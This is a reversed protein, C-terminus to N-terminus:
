EKGFFDPVSWPKQPAYILNGKEITLPSPFNNHYLQGTGLGQPLEPRLSSALQAIANLGINSELASTLWWSIGIDGAIEIWERCATIGGLLSPKLILYSPKIKRLLSEKEEKSRIGILEEDLAVPVPSQRCLKAMAAINGVPIPQEISHISFESLRRLKGLAEEPGFAGNADVRISVQDESYRERLTKLIGCELDFDLAGIKMKICDFGANLKEDIQQQMFQRDGMWILGNIPIPKKSDYFANPLLRKKGGHHLDLIATELGFQLSPFAILEAVSGIQQLLADTDRPFTLAEVKKIIKRAEQLFDGRDDPSLGKLPGAEGLGIADPFADSFVTLIYTSKEKLIGRSTGADFKFDLTYPNIRINVSFNNEM